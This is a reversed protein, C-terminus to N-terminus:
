DYNKYNVLHINYISDLFIIYIIITHRIHLSVICQYHCLHLNYIKIHHNHFARSTLIFLYALGYKEYKSNHRFM